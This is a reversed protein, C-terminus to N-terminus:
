GQKINLIDQGHQKKIPMLREMGVLIITIYRKKIKM